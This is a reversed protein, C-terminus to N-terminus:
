FAAYIGDFDHIEGLTLLIQFYAVMGTFLVILFVQIDAIIEFTMKILYRTSSFVGLYKFIKMWLLLFMINLQFAAIELDLLAQLVV